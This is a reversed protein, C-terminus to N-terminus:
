KPKWGTETIKRKEVTWQAETKDKLAQTGQVTNSFGDCRIPSGASTKFSYKDQLYKYFADSVAKFAQPNLIIHQGPLAEIQFIDSVYIADGEWPSPCFVNTTAKSSSARASSPGASASARARAIHRPTPSAHAFAAPASLMQWSAILVSTALTARHPM